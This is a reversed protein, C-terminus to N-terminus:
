IRQQVANVLTEYDCPGDYRHGDIFFTPTGNIGSRTGSERDARVRQACVDGAMDRLFRNTDLGLGHAYEVLYGSGLASQHELLTEHMNWFQGQLGAAEAAEAAYSHFGDAPFHRFVLRMREGLQAQLAKIWPQADACRTEYYDGYEVLLMAASAPGQAHDREGVPPTLM